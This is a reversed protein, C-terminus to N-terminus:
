KQDEEWETEKERERKWSEKNKERYKIIFFSSSKLRVNCIYLPNLFTNATWICLFGDTCAIIILTKFITLDQAHEM